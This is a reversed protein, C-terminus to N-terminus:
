RRSCWGLVTAVVSSAVAGTGCALTESEVGREYTERLSGDDRLSIVNGNTRRRLLRPHRRIAAGTEHFERHSPWSDADDVVLVVHPVGVAVLTFASVNAALISCTSRPSVTDPIDLWVVQTGATDRLEARVIGSQTEFTCPTQAIEQDIAFRSWMAGNGCMEVESGDANFYRWRFDAPEAARASGTLTEILVVGDSGIALRPRCVRRAWEGKLTEPLTLNRNDVVVFRKGLREDELVACPRDIEAVPWHRDYSATAQRRKSASLLWVPELVLMTPVTQMTGAIQSRGDPTVALRM